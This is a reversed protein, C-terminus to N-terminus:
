LHASSGDSYMDPYDENGTWMLKGQVVEDVEVLGSSKHYEVCDFRIGDQDAHVTFIIGLCHYCAYQLEQGAPMVCLTEM